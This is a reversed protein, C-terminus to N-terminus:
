PDGLQRVLLAAVIQVLERLKGSQASHRRLSQGSKVAYLADVPHTTRHALALQETPCPQTPNPETRNAEAPCPQALNPVALSPMTHATFPM